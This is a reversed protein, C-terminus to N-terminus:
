SSEIVLRIGDAYKLLNSMFIALFPHVAKFLAAILQVRGAWDTTIKFAALTNEIASREEPKLECKQLVFYFVDDVRKEYKLDLTVLDSQLKELEMKIDVGQIIVPGNAYVTGNAVLDGNLEMLVNNMNGLM